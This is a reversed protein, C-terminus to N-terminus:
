DYIRSTAETRRGCGAKPHGIMVSGRVHDGILRPRQDPVVTRIWM